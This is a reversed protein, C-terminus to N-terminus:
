RGLPKIRVNRYWVPSGHDQFGIRGCRPMDKYATRFKNPTGDPNKGAETWRDLNMDIVPEGNLVVNIKPGRCTLAVHNWEGAPKVANKSPALCDYIAGCDHTDAAPKGHSDLVQMEIGTQVCDKIDATRFFVGSNTKEAVKFDLELTFDGFIQESWIDGGGQRTLVGDAMTWSGPKAIWGALNQGNLLNVWGDAALQASPTADSWLDGLAFQVGALYHRLVAPNWFIEDRHGLSCYFVRGLGYNRVWSVAFDGDTRKIGPRTMDTQATDLSLLVRLKARSYPEKFQYIEDAIEFPKGAFAANISQGPADIKVTVTGNWPHGDFYGGM